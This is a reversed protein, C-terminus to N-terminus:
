HNRAPTRNTANVSAEGHIANALVEIGEALRPGFGLLLDDAVTVVRRARGAPTQAIGPLALLADIGGLSKLGNTPLVIVDAASVAVAEATFPKYGTLQQAANVAGASQLMADAGTQRGAVFLTGVGRAYIFLARPRPGRRQANSEARIIAARMSEALSDALRQKGLAAGIRTIRDLAIEKSEGSPLVIVRVAASRLQALTSAAAGSDAIVLTPRLAMIGEAGAQRFYGVNPLRKVDVPFTSSADVGVVESGSGLAFVTETIAGGLTVIRARGVQAAAPRVDGVVAGVVVLLAMWLTRM